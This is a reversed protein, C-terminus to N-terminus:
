LYFKEKIQILNALSKKKLVLNGEQAKLKAEFFLNLDGEFVISKNNIDDIKELMNKPDSITSLEENETNANCLNILLLLENEIKVEIILVRGSKLYFKNLLKFYKNGITVGRSNTKSHFFFLVITRSFRREM